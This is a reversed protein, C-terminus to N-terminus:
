FVSSFQSERAGGLTLATVGLLPVVRVPDGDKWNPPPSAFSVPEATPSRASCEKPLYYYSDFCEPKLLSLLPPRPPLLRPSQPLPGKRLPPFASTWPRLSQPNDATQPRWPARRKRAPAICEPAPSRRAPARACADYTM